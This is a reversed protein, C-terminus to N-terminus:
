GGVKDVAVPTTAQDTTGTGLQGKPNVGWCFAGTATAACTHNEGASVSIFSAMSPSPSRNIPRGSRGTAWSAAPIPAGATCRAAPGGAPTPPGLALEDFTLTTQVPVPTKRDTTSGDGLQGNRNDGWCYAKGAATLGCSFAGGAYVHAFKIDTSVEIPITGGLSRRLWAPRQFWRGLLLDKRHHRHGCTHGGGPRSRRSPRTGCRAGSRDPRTQSGDGLQGNRNDGWCYARGPPPSVAHTGAVRPSCGSARARRYGARRDDPQRPPQRGWSVVPTTVGAGPKAAPRSAAPTGTAPASACWPSARTSPRRTSWASEGAPWGAAPFSAAPTSVVPPSASAPSGSGTGGAATSWRRSTRRPPSRLPLGNRIEVGGDRHDDGDGRRGRHGAGDPLRTAVGTASSNWSVPRDTMPNGRDDRVAAALQLTQGVELAHRPRDGGREGRGRGAGPGASHRQRVPDRGHRHDPNVGPGVATVVGSDPFAHRGTRRRFELSGPSRHAGRRACGAPHRHAPRERRRAAFRAPQDGRGGGGRGAGRHDPRGREEPRQPRTVTATGPGVATVLGSPSVPPSRSMARVGRPRATPSPRAGAM